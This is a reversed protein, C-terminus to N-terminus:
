RKRWYNVGRPFFSGEQGLFYGLTPVTPKRGEDRANWRALKVDVEM